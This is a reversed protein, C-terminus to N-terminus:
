YLKVARVRSRVNLASGSNQYVNVYRTTSATVTDIYTFQINVAQSEGASNARANNTLGGSGTSSSGVWISRRYSANQQFYGHVSVLWTGASLTFSDLNYTSGSAVSVTGSNNKLLNRVGTLEIKTSAM